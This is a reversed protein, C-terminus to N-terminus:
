WYVRRYSIRGVGSIVTGNADDENCITQVADILGKASGAAIEVEWGVSSARETGIEDGVTYGTRRRSASSATVIIHNVTIAM